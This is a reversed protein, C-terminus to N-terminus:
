PQATQVAICLWFLRDESGRTDFANIEASDKADGEEIADWAAAMEALAANYAADVEQLADFAQNAKEIGEPTFDPNADYVEWAALAASRAEILATAELHNM